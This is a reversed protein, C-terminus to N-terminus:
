CIRSSLKWMWWVRKLPTAEEGLSGSVAVLHDQLLRFRPESHQKQYRQCQSESQAALGSRQLQESLVVIHHLEAALGVSTAMPAAALVVSSVKSESQAVLRWALCHQIGHSLPGIHHGEADQESRDSAEPEATQYVESSNWPYQLRCEAGAHRPSM